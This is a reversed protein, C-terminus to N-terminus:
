VDSVEMDEITISVLENVYNPLLCSRESSSARNLASFSREVTATTIPLLLLHCFVDRLSPFTAAHHPQGLLFSLFAASTFDEQLRRFTNWEADLNSGIEEDYRLGVAPLVAKWDVVQKKQSM